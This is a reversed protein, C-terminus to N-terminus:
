DFTCVDEVAKYIEVPINRRVGERVRDEDVRASICCNHYSFPDDNEHVPFCLSKGLKKDFVYHKWIAPRFIWRLVSWKEQENNNLTLEEVSRWFLRIQLFMMSECSWKFGNTDVIWPSGWSLYPIEIPTETEEEDFDIVDVGRVDSAFSHPVRFSNIIPAKLLEFVEEFLLSIPSSELESAFQFRRKQLSRAQSEATVIESDYSKFRAGSKPPRLGSAGFLDTDTLLM